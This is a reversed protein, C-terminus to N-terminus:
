AHSVNVISNHSRTHTDTSTCADICPLTWPIPAFECANSYIYIYM